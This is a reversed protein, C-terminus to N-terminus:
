REQAFIHLVNQWLCIMAQWYTRALPDLICAACSKLCGGDGDYRQAPAQRLDHQIGSSAVAPLERGEGADQVQRAIHSAQEGSGDEGLHGRFVVKGIM